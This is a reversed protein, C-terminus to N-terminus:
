SFSTEKSPTTYINIITNSDIQLLCNCNSDIEQILIPDTNRFSKLLCHSCVKEKLTKADYKNINLNGKFTKNSYKVKKLVKESMYVRM